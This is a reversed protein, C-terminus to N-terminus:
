KVELLLEILRRVVQQLANPPNYKELHDLTKLMNKLEVVSRKETMM